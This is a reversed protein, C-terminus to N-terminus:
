DGALTYPAIMTDLVPIDRRLQDLAATKAQMDLAYTADQACVIVAIPETKGFMRCITNTNGVRVEVSEIVILRLGADNYIERARLTNV